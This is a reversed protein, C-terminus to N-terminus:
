NDRALRVLRRRAFRLIAKQFNETAQKFQGLGFYDRGMLYYTEGTPTKIGQVVQLSGKYDTHQYLDEARKLDQAYSVIGASLALALTLRSM